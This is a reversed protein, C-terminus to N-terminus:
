GPYGVAQCNDVPQLLSARCRVHGEFLRRATRYVTASRAVAVLGTHEIDAEVQTIGSPHAIRIPGDGAEILAHPISGPIRSAVGLCLAGTLPVARHLKGDSSMRIALSADTAAFTQGSLAAFPAPRGVMAVRMASARGGVTELNPALGAAVSAARRIRELLNMLCADAELETLTESATRDLASADIFACPTAADVISAQIPGFGPIHLQTRSHGTPLLAGTKAGGPDYFELRIPAGTGSVGDLVFNGEVLAESDSVEFRAVIIKSTNTNHIRIRATAPGPAAVLGEDVAFPGIASVMNGCNTSYDVRATKVAVQAFTYDVDADPRTPPGVICVKSVSLAGGGMGDLQRGNPDPSGLIDLFIRDRAAPDPPLDAAHFIVAKSTGGRMFVAKLKAQKM